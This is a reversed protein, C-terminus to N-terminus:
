PWSVRRYLTMRAYYQDTRLLSHGFEVVVEHVDYVIRQATLLPFGVEIGLLAAEEIEATIASLREEAMKLPRGYIGEIVSYLSETELAQTELGPFLRAPLHTTELAAPSGDIFRIRRLRYIPEGMELKLMGAVEANAPIQIVELLKTSPVRGRGKVEETFSRLSQFDFPSSGAGIVPIRGKATILLGETKLRRFAQRIPMKSTGLMRALEGESYFSEGPILAKSQIASRVQTVIQEYFPVFSGGDIRLELDCGARRSSNRSTTEM